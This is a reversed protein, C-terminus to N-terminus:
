TGFATGPVTAVKAEDLLYDAVEASTKGLSKINVFIYFAGEPMRCSIGDMENLAKVAYNRRREYEKVM